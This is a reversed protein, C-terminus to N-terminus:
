KAGPGQLMVHGHHMLAQSRRMYLASAFLVGLSGLLLTLIVIGSTLTLSLGVLFSVIWRVM